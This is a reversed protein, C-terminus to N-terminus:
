RADYWSIVCIDLPCVGLYSILFHCIMNLYRYLHYALNLPWSYDSVRSESESNLQPVSSSIFPKVCISPRDVCPESLYFKIYIKSVHLYFTLLYLYTETQTIHLSLKLKNSQSASTRKNQSVGLAFPVQHCALTSHLILAYLSIYHLVGLCM